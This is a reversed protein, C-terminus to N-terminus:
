ARPLPISVREGCEYVSVFVAWDGARLPAKTHKRVYLFWFFFFPIELEKFCSCM